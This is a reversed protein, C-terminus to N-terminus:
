VSVPMSISDQPAYGHIKFDEVEYDFISKNTLFEVTPLEYNPTRSLQENVGDMQNVYIHTDGTTYVLDGAIMGCEHAVLMLLFAYGAINYPAGIPWDNSRVYVQMSLRNDIHTHFQIVIGHCPALSMMGDAVHEQPSKKGDPVFGVNWTTLVIRRSNPNSQITNIAEQLQDVQYVGNPSCTRYARLQEGYMPGISGKEDAWENWIKSNLDNVNTSGKVFWLIEGIVHKFNIKKTSLLPFGQRLDFRTQTGFISITENATRNGKLEGEDVIQQMINLYKQM